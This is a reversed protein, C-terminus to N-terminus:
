SAFRVAFEARTTKYGYICDLRAPHQDTMIDSDEWFRIALGLEPARVREAKGSNPMVLDASALVFADPHFGLGQPTETNAAGVVNIAVGNAPLQDVTAYAGGTTTTHIPPYIPITANGSADSAVDATVVFQMAQTTSRYNQPNLAKVLTSGSGITFVDGKKLRTAAATTWGNTVLSSGSQSAGNTVPSGGLPGVVHPFVNVDEYWEDFGLAQAGFMGERWLDSIDKAPNFSALNANAIKYRMIANVVAIRPGPPTGLNTLRAGAALYTENSTIVTGPTGELSFVDQYCRSLGDADITNALQIAAPDIYRKRVDQIELTAQWSSWGFAINAQDTITVPVLNDQLAQPQIAQGKTTQFRQPLRVNVTAGTKTGSVKFEDSLMKEIKAAFKLKNKAVRLVERGVWTPTLLTNAAM